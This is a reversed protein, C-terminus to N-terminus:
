GANSWAYINQGDLTPAWNAFNNYLATAYNVAGTSANGSILKGSYDGVYVTGSDIVPTLGLGTSFTTSASTTTAVTAGSANSVNWLGYNTVGSLADIGLVYVSSGATAPAAIPFAAFTRSWALNGSAEDVAELQNSSNVYARGAGTVVVQPSLSTKDITQPDQWAWRTSFHSADVTVPVYGNHANNGQLTSWDTAGSLASLTTLHSGFGVSIQYPFKVPFGSLSASCSADSCVNLTVTGSYYGPLIQANSNLTVNLTNGSVTASAASSLLDGDASVQLTPNAPLQGSYTLAAPIPTSQGEVVTAALVTPPTVSGSGPAPTPTTTPSPTPTTGSSNNSSGDGGGGGCAALASLLLGACLTRAANNEM